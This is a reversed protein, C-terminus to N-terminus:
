GVRNFIHYGITVASVSLGVEIQSTRATDRM